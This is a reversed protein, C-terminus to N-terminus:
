AHKLPMAQHTEPLRKGLAAQTQGGQQASGQSCNHGAILSGITRYQDICPESDPL